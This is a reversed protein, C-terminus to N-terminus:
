INRVAGEGFNRLWVVMLMIILLFIVFYLNYLRVLVEWIKLIIIRMDEFYGREFKIGIIIFICIFLRVYILRIYEFRENPILRAIYTFLILVGRIIVLILIYRCWYRDMKYYIFISYGMTIIIIRIIIFYPQVRWVFILGLIIIIKM